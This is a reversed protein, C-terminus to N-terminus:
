KEARIVSPISSKCNMPWWSSYENNNKRRRESLVLPDGTRAANNHDMSSSARTHVSFWKLILWRLTGRGSRIATLVIVPSDYFIRMQSKSEIRLDSQSRRDQNEFVIRPSKAGWLYSISLGAHDKSACLGEWPPAYRRRGYLYSEDPLVNTAM